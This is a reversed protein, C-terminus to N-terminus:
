VIRGAFLRRIAGESKRRLVSPLLRSRRGGYAAGTTGSVGVLDPIDTFRQVTVGGTFEATVLRQAVVRELWISRDDDVESAMAYLYRRWVGATFMMFRTDVFRRDISRRVQVVDPGLEHLIVAANRVQLRGTVKAVTDAPAIDLTTLAHDIAATEIAGKGLAALGDAPLYRVFDVQPDDTLDSKVAGSTEVVAVRAGTREAVNRWGTLAERYQAARALPDAVTMRYSADPALFAQNPTVAASLLVLM